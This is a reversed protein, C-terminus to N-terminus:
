FGDDDGEAKEEPRVAQLARLLDARSVFVDTIKPQKEGVARVEIFILEEGEVVSSEETFRLLRETARCSVILDDLNPAPSDAALRQAERVQQLMSEAERHLTDILEPIAGVAALRLERSARLLPKQDGYSVASADGAMYVCSTRRTLLAWAEGNRGYGLEDDFWREVGLPAQDDQVRTGPITVWAEMGIGSANLRQQIKTLADSLADSGSNLQRAISTLSDIQASASTRSPANAM